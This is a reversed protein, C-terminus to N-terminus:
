LRWLTEKVNCNIQCVSNQLRDFLYDAVVCVTCWRYHGLDCCTVIVMYASYRMYLTYVLIGFHMDLKDYL